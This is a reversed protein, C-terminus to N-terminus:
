ELEKPNAIRVDINLNEKAFKVAEECSQYNKMKNLIMEESVGHQNRKACEKANNRWPTNPEILNIEYGAIAGWVIYDRFDSYKINTNDTIIIPINKEAAKVFTSRCMAHADGLKNFDFRYVGDVGIFYNDASCVVCNEPGYKQQIQNCLFSKGSGPWSKLIFVKKM